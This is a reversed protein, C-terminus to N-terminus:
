LIKGKKCNQFEKFYIYNIKFYSLSVSSYCCQHPYSLLVPPSGLTNRWPTPMHIKMYYYYIHSILFFHWLLIFHPSFVNNGGCFPKKKNMQAGIQGLSPCSGLNPNIESGINMWISAATATMTQNQLREKHFSVWTRLDPSPSPTSALGRRLGPHWTSRQRHSHGM